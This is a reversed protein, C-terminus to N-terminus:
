RRPQFLHRRVLERCFASGDCELFKGALAAQERCFVRMSRPPAPDCLSRLNEIARGYLALRQGDPLARLARTEATAGTWVLLAIAVFAACASGIWFWRPLPREIARQSEAVRRDVPRVLRLTPPM